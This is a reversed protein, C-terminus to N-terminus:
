NMSRYFRHNGIDVVYEYEKAWEPLRKVEKPNLYHDAGKVNNEILGHIVDYSALYARTWDKEQVNKQMQECKYSFHCKYAIVEEVTDPWRPSEVREMIVFGIAIAGAMPEGRAEYVMAEAMASCEKNQKCWEEQESLSPGYLLREWTMSSPLKLPPVQIVDRPTFWLDITKLVLCAFVALIITACIYNLDNRSM